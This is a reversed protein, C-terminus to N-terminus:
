KPDLLRDLGAEGTAIKELRPYRLGGHYDIALERYADGRKVVLQIPKGDAKAATIADKLREGTTAAGNVSVITDALTLGAKFAPGDWLVESLGNDKGLVLGLSYRLNTQKRSKEDAKFWGTPADTYVLRYGNRELGALPPEPRVQYIRADLFGKWDYHVVSELTRVVDEYRYTAVGWDGDGFGAFARAFDDISKTGHSQERIVADAELWVMMGENYYDESRQWSVWGKPARATIVPDNTTDEVSRWTRGERVALNAAIGALADLTQARSYMGSRAGLVYGWFQDLGEYAWLLSDRMPTRFDPTWLDAGRRFKGIWSHDYEHPILNRDPLANDWDTFYGPEVQNESSRHHELGIGGIQDSVALLIEYHDYHEAGYLKVAQDVIAKHKAIVEDPAALEKASDAFVNLDVKPSLPFEKYYRGAFVPSDVLTDYDTKRYVYSDGQKEAPLGSVASWGAPYTARAEIAIRRTFYGAPYLSVAPWQLNLLNPTVVIRGQNGVTASVFQFEATVSRAGKPVDLHFAFVDVPDRTWPIVQGNARFVLGALKEIEGRASHKGPLWKPYLLVLHGAKAVPIEQKVRFIGHDLDTADVDLKMTGPYATDRPSPIRDEFRLPQPASNQALAPAAVSSLLLALAVARLM